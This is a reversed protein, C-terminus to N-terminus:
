RFTAADLLDALSSRVSPEESLLTNPNLCRLSAAAAMAVLGHGQGMGKLGLRGSEPRSVEDDVSLQLRFYQQKNSPLPNVKDLVASSEPFPM